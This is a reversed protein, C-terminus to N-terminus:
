MFSSYGFEIENGLRATQGEKERRRMQRYESEPMLEGPEKRDIFLIGDIHDIEHQFIRATFGSVTEKARTGDPLDYSVDINESRSVRGFGAPISLCGEWDVVKESSYRTIEPNLYARIPKEPEIDLRMVLVLRRNIGVQPAAIGVGKELELAALMRSILHDVAPDSYDTPQCKTRLFTDGTPNDNLVVPLPKDAAAQMIMLRETPSLGSDPKISKLQAACSCLASAFLLCAILRPALSDNPNM